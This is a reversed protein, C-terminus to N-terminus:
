SSTHECNKEMEAKMDQAESLKEEYDLLANNRYDNLFTITNDVLMNMVLMAKDPTGILYMNSSIFGKLLPMLTEEAAITMLKAIFRAHKQQEESSETRNKEYARRKLSGLRQRLRRMDHFKYPDQTYDFGYKSVIDLMAMMEFVDRKSLYFMHNPDETDPDHIKYGEEIQVRSAEHVKM